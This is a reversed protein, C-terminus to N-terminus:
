ALSRRGRVERRTSFSVRGKTQRNLCAQMRCGIPAFATPWGYLGDVRKWWLERTSLSDSVQEAAEGHHRRAAAFVMRDLVALAFATGATFVGVAFFDVVFLDWFTPRSAWSVFVHPCLARGLLAGVAVMFLTRRRHQSTYCVFAIIVVTPAYLLLLLTLSHATEPFTVVCALASCFFTVNILLRRLTFRTEAM